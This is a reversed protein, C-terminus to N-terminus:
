AWCYYVCWHFIIPFIIIMSVIFCYSMEENSLKILENNLIKKGGSHVIDQGGILQKTSRLEHLVCCLRDIKLWGQTKIRDDYTSTISSLTIKLLLIEFHFSFELLNVLDPIVDRGTTDVALDDFNSLGNEKMKLM